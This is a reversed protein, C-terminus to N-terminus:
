VTACRGWKEAQAISHASLHYFPATSVVGDKEILVSEAGTGIFRAEITKQDNSTWPLLTSSQANASTSSILTLLLSTILTTKM